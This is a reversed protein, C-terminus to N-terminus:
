PECRPDAVVVHVGRNSPYLINWKATVTPDGTFVDIQRGVVRVGRDEAIFCGDHPTGDPRPLGLLEPIFLRTGLAIVKSDVAVTRLPTIARGMAGRGHPFLAPDLREFCIRQGTRPCVSACECGRKAFSVTAGSALRGSGQVCVQDHFSETVRALPNCSADFLTRASPGDPETPFDYYTNRFLQPDAPQAVLPPPKAGRAVIRESSTGEDESPGLTSGIPIRALEGPGITAPEIPAEAHTWEMERGVAPDPEAHRV